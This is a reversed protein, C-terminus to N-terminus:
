AIRFVSSDAAERVDLEMAPQVPAHAAVFANLKQVKLVVQRNERLVMGERVFSSMAVSVKPRSAGIMEGLMQHSLTIGMITGRTDRVGFEAALELLVLALRRSLGLGVFAPYRAFMRGSGNFKKEL